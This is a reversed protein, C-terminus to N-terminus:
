LRFNILPKARRMGRAQSQGKHGNSGERELLELVGAVDQGCSGEGERRLEGEFTRELRQYIVCIVNLSVFGVM